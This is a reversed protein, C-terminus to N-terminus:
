LAVQTIDSALPSVRVTVVRNMSCRPSFVLLDSFALTVHLSTACWLILHEIVKLDFVVFPLSRTARARPPLTPASPWPETLWPLACSLSRSVRRTVRPL